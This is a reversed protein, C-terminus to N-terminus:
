GGSCCGRGVVTKTQPPGLPLPTELASTLFNTSAKPPMTLTFIVKVQEARETFAKMAARWLEPGVSIRAVGLERIEKV